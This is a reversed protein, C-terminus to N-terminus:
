QEDSQHWSKGSLAALLGPSQPLTEQLRQKVSCQDATLEAPDADRLWFLAGTAVGIVAQEDGSDLRTLFLNWAAVTYGEHRNGLVRRVDLM